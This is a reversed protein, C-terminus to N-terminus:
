IELAALFGGHVAHNMKCFDEPDIDPSISAAVQCYAFSAGSKEQLNDAHANRVDEATPQFDPEVHAKDSKKLGQANAAAPSDQTIM